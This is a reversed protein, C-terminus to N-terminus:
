AKLEGLTELIALGEASIVQWGNWKVAFGRQILSSRATKSVLNGDWTAKRLQRLVELEAPTLLPCQRLRRDRCEALSENESDYVYWPQSM